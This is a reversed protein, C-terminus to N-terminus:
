QIWIFNFFVNSKKKHDLWKQFISPLSPNSAVLYPFEDICFILPKKQLELVEFLENWTKPVITTELKEKIDQYVQDLQVGTSGEIAQTYLGGNKQIWHSLLHTKGIRRRGWVVLLGFKKSLTELEQIELERNVFSLMLIVIDIFM